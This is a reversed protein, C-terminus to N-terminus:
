AQAEKPAEREEAPPDQQEEDESIMSLERQREAETMVRTEIIEGSDRRVIEIVGRKYDRAEHCLVPRYESKSHVIESLRYIEEDATKIRTKFTDNADAKEVDIRRRIKNAESLSWGREELEGQTLRVPLQREFTRM